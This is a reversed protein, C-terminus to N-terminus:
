FPADAKQSREDSHSRAGTGRVLRVGAFLIVIGQVIVALDAPVNTQSEMFAAGSGLAGFFLASVLVGLGSLGGLLAVAIGDFGYSAAVGEVYRHHVSMVEIAGAVGALAGSLLMAYLRTRDVRIGAAEAAEPGLGVARLRYGWATWPLLVAFGVAAAIAILFGGTLNSQTAFSASGLWASAAIARTEPAMREPDKLGHLILYAALNVSVYNLLITSLVEHVGRRAKLVAPIAGWFAGVAAGTLLVLPVHLIPPLGRAQGAVAAGLAGLTM